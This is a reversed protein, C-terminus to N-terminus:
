PNFAGVGTSTAGSMLIQQQGVTSGMIPKIYQSHSQVMSHKTPITQQNNQGNAAGNGNNTFKIQSQSLQKTLENYNAQKVGLKSKQNTSQNSNAGGRGTNSGSNNLAM